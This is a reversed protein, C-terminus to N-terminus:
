EFRCRFHHSESQVGLARFILRDTRDPEFSASCILVPENRDGHHIMYGGWLFKETLTRWVPYMTKPMPYKRVRLVIDHWFFFDQDKPSTGEKEMRGLEDDVLVLLAPLFTHVFPQSIVIEREKDVIPYDVYQRRRSLLSVYEQFDFIVTDQYADKPLEGDKSIHLGLAQLLDPLSFLLNYTLKM